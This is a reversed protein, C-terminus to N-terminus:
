PGFSLKVPPPKSCVEKGGRQKAQTQSHRRKAIGWGCEGVGARQKSYPSPPMHADQGPRVYVGQLKMMTEASAFTAVGQLGGCHGWLCGIFPSLHPVWFSPEGARKCLSSAPPLIM